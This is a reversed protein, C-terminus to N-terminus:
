HTASDAPESDILEARRFNFRPTPRDGGRQLNELPLFAALAVLQPLFVLGLVGFTIVHFAYFAAVVLLRRAESRVVFILPSALEGLVTLWQAVRLLWPVSLMATGITTPRRVIAWALTGGNVWGWGGIRIKAWAALFYTAVAAVCTTRVAWGASTSPARDSWAANAVTPLVALLVLFAFRDHDVKGYSMAVLMWWFYTAFSAAGAIRPFLRHTTCSTVLAVAATLLVAVRLGDVLTVTPTPLHLLGAVHRPQYLGPTDAHRGIWRTLVLVDLVIFGYAFFRLMTVRRVSVLPFWWAAARTLGSTSDPGAPTLRV